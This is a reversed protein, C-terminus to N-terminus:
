LTFVFIVATSALAFVSVASDPSEMEYSFSMRAVPALTLRRIKLGQLNPHQLGTSARKSMDVCTANDPSARSYCRCVCAQWVSTQLMCPQM